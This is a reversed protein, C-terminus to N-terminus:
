FSVLVLYGETPFRGVQRPSKTWYVHCGSSDYTLTFYILPNEAYEQYPCVTFEEWSIYLAKKKLDEKDHKHLLCPYTM